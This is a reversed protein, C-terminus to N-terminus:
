VTRVKKFHPHVPPASSPFHSGVSVESLKFKQKTRVVGSMGAGPVDGDLEGDVEGSAEIVGERESVGEIDTVGMGEADAVVGDSDDEIDAVEEGDGDIDKPLEWDLEEAGEIVARLGLKQQSEATSPYLRTGTM